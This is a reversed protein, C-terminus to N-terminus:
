PWLPWLHYATYQYTLANNGKAVLPLVHIVMTLNHEMIKHSPNKVIDVQQNELVALMCKLSTFSELYPGFDIFSIVRFMACDARIQKLIDFLVPEYFTDTQRYKMNYMSDHLTTEYESKFRFPSQIM